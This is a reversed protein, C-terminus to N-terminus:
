SINEHMENSSCGTCSWYKGYFVFKFFYYNTIVAEDKENLKFKCCLLQANKIEKIQLM